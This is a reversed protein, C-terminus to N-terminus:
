KRRHMIIKGMHKRKHDMYAKYIYRALSIKENSYLFSNKIRNLLSKRIIDFENKFLKQYKPKLYLYNRVMYYIRLPSHLARASKKMTKLSRYNGTVGLSHNLHISSMKIIEYGNQKAKFCYEHDVNDIFLAEDFGGLKSFLRLNLISGSTILLSVSEPSCAEQRLLREDYEVGYMAVDDKWGHRSICDLYKEFISDRFFSDQDMTLLWDYGATIAAHAAQNLRSSIGENEGNHITTMEQWCPLTTLMKSNDVIILKQLKKQYSQIREALGNGPDYLIVTGALKMPAHNM